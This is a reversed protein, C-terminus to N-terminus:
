HSYQTQSRPPAYWKSGQSPCSFLGQYCEKCKSCGEVYDRRPDRNPWLGLPQELPVSTTPLPSDGSRAIQHVFLGVSTSAAHHSCALSSPCTPKQLCSLSASSGEFSTRLQFTNPSSLPLTRLHRAVDETATPIVNYLLEPTPRFKKAVSAYDAFNAVDSEATAQPSHSYTWRADVLMLNRTTSAPTVLKRYVQQM